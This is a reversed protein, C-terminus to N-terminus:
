KKMIIYILQNLEGAISPFLDNIKDFYDKDLKQVKHGDRYYHLEAQKGSFKVKGHAFDDRINMVDYLNGRLKKLDSSKLNPHLECLQSFVKIKNYFSFFNTNLVIDKFLQRTQLNDPFFAYAIVETIQDEVILASHLLRGRINKLDENQREIDKLDEPSIIWSEGPPIKEPNSIEILDFIKKVM